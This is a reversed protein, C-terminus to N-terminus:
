EGHLLFNITLNEKVALQNNAQIYLAKGISLRASNDLVTIVVDGSQNALGSVNFDVVDDGYVSALAKVIGTKSVITNTAFYAGISNISSISLANKLATNNFKDPSLYLTLTLSQDAAITTQVNNNLLVDISGKSVQPYFYVHTNELVQENLDALGRTLWTYLAQEVYSMYATTIADNAFAYIGDITFLDVSRLMQSGADTSIVPKGDEDLVPDGARHAYITNGQSDKKVDGKSHLKTFVLEGNIVEFPNNTLPDVKYIDKDYVAPVDTAYTRYPITSTFSRYRNWLTELYAGLTVNLQEHTVGVAGSPLQYTGLKSDIASVAYTTPMPSSVGFFVDFTDTLSCRPKLSSAPQGFSTLTLKHEADVDYNTTIDFVFTREGRDNERPLQRGTMYARAGRSIFSLQCFVQSDPLAQYAENSTTKVFVQYGTATKTIGHTESISVQMGTSANEQVFTRYNKAPLDLFYPRVTFEDETNDLVYYFPTYAYDGENLAKVKDTSSLTTLATYQSATLLATKGNATRMVATPTITLGSAHTSVGYAIADQAMSSVLTTISAAAPTYANANAEVVDQPSPLAKTALYIRNTVTDVNKIVTYGDDLIVNQIQSPTIPIKRPGISSAIVRAKLEEFGLADRGGTTVDTSYAYLNTLGQFAAVQPTGDRADIYTFEAEFDGIAYNSMYMAVKGRTHYVDIRIKGSVLGNTTYVVPITCTLVNNTVSLFATPNSADYVEQTYTVAMEVWDGALNQRFVRCYYFQDSFAVKTTFGGTSNVDNMVSTIEFQHTDFTLQIFNVQNPGVVRVLDVVNTTLTQLPTVITADYVARLDGHQMKRIVIPYQISFPVGAAKFVSNRPIVVSAIGTAPDEVLANLLQNEEILLTFRATSPLAFANVYDTDAMHLYLDSMATAAAPYLKRTAAETEQIALATMVVSAEIAQVAANSADVFQVKGNRVATLADIVRRTMRHPSTVYNTVDGLITSISQPTTSSDSM